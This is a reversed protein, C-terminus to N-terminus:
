EADDDDEAPSEVDYIWYWQRGLVKVTMTTYVAEDFAFTMTFVPIILSLILLAPVYFFLFEVKMVMSYNGWVFMKRRPTFPIDQQNFDPFYKGVEAQLDAGKVWKQGRETVVTPHQYNADKGTLPDRSAHYADFPQGFKEVHDYGRRSDDLLHERGPTKSAENSYNHTVVSRTGM